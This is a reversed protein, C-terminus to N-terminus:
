RYMRKQRNIHTPNRLKVLGDLIDCLQFTTQIQRM